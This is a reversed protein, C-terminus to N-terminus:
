PPKDLRRRWTKKEKPPEYWPCIDKPDIVEVNQGNIEVSIPINKRIAKNLEYEPNSDTM